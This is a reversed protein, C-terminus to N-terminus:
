TDNNVENTQQQQRVKNEHYRQKNKLNISERNEAYYRKRYALRKESTAYKKNYSKRKENIEEKHDKQYVRMQAYVRPHKHRHRNCYGTSNHARLQNECGPEKCTRKNYNM